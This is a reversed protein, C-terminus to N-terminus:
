RLDVCTCRPLRRWASIPGARSKLLRRLWCRFFLYFQMEIAATWLVGNLKTGLLINPFLTQTIDADATLREPM